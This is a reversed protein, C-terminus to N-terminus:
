VIIQHPVALMMAPTRLTDTTWAATPSERFGTSQHMMEVVLQKLQREESQGRSHVVPAQVPQVILQQVMVNEILIHVDIPQALMIKLINTIKIILEQAHTWTIVVIRVRIAISELHEISTYHQAAPATIQVQEQVQTLLVIELLHTDRMAIIIKELVVHVPLLTPQQVEMQIQLQSITM